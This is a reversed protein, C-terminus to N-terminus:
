AVVAVIAAGPTLVLGTVLDIPLANWGIACATLNAKQNGAAASAVTAADNVVLTTSANAYFGLLQGSRPLVLTASGPVPVSQGVPFNGAPM